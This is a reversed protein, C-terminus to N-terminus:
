KGRQARREAVMRNIEDALERCEAMLAVLSEGSPACRGLLWNEAARPTANAHRALIKTANRLPGYTERLIRAVGDCYATTAATVVRGPFNHLSKASDNRM